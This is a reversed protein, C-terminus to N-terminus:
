YQRCTIPRYYDTFIGSAMGPMHVLATVGFREILSALRLLGPIETAYHTADMLVLPTNQASIEGPHTLDGSIYLDIGTHLAIKILDRNLGFGSVVGVSEISRDRTFNVMRLYDINLSKMVYRAYRILSVPGDRVRGVRGIRTQADLPGAVEINLCAALADCAGGDHIDWNSHIVYSPIVPTTMPPHHLILLDVTDYRIAARDPPLYDLLVLVSRVELEEPPITGIYGHVDGPLSLSPPVEDEILQFLTEANM